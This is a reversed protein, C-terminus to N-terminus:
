WSFGFDFHLEEFGQFSVIAGASITTNSGIGVEIEGYTGLWGFIGYEDPDGGAIFFNYIDVNYAGGCCSDGDISLGFFKRLYDVARRDKGQVCLLHVPQHRRHLLFPLGDEAQWVPVLLLAPRGWDSFGTVQPPLDCVFGSLALL